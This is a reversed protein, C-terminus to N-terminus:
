RRIDIVHDPLAMATFQHISIGDGFMDGTPRKGTFMEPLLVGYSYIDGFISVQGGIGYEPRIYGVSGKLGVSMAQSQTSDNSSESLFRTLGFDGVHAVMDENLLVNSPKLDCHVISTECHHHLYDLASAVDIAINLRQNLSLRKIQSQEKDRPYLWSDLSGNEMFEFVLSKFDNGLNDISLCATVFKLLNRHRISRLAKCEDIFSKFAGQQQLNLVKVAVITGDSTIVGKYVSGFSGSGILNDVSFANTSALLESYSVGSKWDKYSRSTALGGRSSKVKSYTAISCSLAIIFALACAIPVVVNRSFLRHSSHPKINPCSPLRFQSIGGCLRENGLVSVSSANSLIGEKPLEGEFDNHSLNLNM